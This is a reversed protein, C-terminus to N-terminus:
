AYILRRWLWMDDEKDPRSNLSQSEGHCQVQDKDIMLNVFGASIVKDNPFKKVIDSHKQGEEFVVFGALEFRIYKM